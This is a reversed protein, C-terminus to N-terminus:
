SGLVTMYFRFAPQQFNWTQSQWMAFWEGAVVMFGFYWVFFALTAGAIFLTKAENFVPGPANRM